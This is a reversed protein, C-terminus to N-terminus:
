GSLQDLCLELFKKRSDSFRASPAADIEFATVLIKGGLPNEFYVAGPSVAEQHEASSYASFGLATVVEASRAVKQLFPTAASKANTFKQGTASVEFTAKFNRPAAECGLLSAFGRETLRMAARGDILVRRSLLTKLEQDTLRDITEEGGLAYIRDLTYDTSGFFPIGFLAFQSNVWSDLPYRQENPCEVPHLRYPRTFLPLIVGDPTTGEVARALAPYFDRNKALIETYKRSVPIGLKEANVFWLKAGKLGCFISAALKAHLGAASRSYLSHPWTDSEDLLFPIESYQAAQGMTRFVTPAFADRPSNECYMQNTIRLMPPHHKGAMARSTAVMNQGRGAMCSASEIAPDVSDIGERLLTAVTVPIENAMEMFADYVADGRHGGRLYDRVEESTYHTGLRRNLEAIHLPCFCELDPCYSRVDDDTMIFAPKEAALKRGVERIYAQFAPDLTCFRTERGNIDIARQWPEIEKDVRPWHGLISQLLIGCRVDKDGLAAKFARFSAIYRDVKQMAPKGEPHLSLCYLLDRNGTKERYEIMEQAMVAEKGIALPVINFFRFDEGGAAFVASFILVAAFCSKMM